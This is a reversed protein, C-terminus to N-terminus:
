RYKRGGSEPLLANNNYETEFTPGRWRITVVSRFEIGDVVTHLTAVRIRGELRDAVSGDLYLFFGRATVAVVVEHSHVRYVLYRSFTLMRFVGYFVIILLLSAAVLTMSWLPTM